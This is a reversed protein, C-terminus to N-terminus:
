GGRSGVAKCVKNLVIIMDNTTIEAIILCEATQNQIGHVVYVVLIVVDIIQAGGIITRILSAHGPCDVLTLQVADYKGAESPNEHRLREPLPM